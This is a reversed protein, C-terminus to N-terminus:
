GRYYIAFMKGGSTGNYFERTFLFMPNTRVKRLQKKVCEEHIGLALAIDRTHKYGAMILMQIDQIRGDTPKRKNNAQEVINAWRCNEPTYDGMNDIRDLTTGNPRPGMDELFKDFSAWRECVNIGRGGYDKWSRRKPNLCRQKMSSWSYYEPSFKGETHGHKFSPNNKGAVAIRAM